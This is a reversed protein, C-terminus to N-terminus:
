SGAQSTSVMSHRANKEHKYRHKSKLKIKNSNMINNNNSSSIVRTSSRIISNCNAGIIQVLMAM